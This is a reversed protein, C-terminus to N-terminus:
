EADGDSNFIAEIDRAVRGRAARMEIRLLVPDRRSIGSYSRPQPLGACGALALVGAAAAGSRWQWAIGDWRSGNM